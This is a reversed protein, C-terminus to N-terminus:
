FCQQAAELESISSITRIGVAGRAILAKAGETKDDFVFVPSLTRRLNETTGSWTGGVGNRCHAVLTKEGMAHILLNRAHAKQASFPADYAQESVFVSSKEVKYETLRGAPFIVARGGNEVCARRAAEDAGVAGGSCLCFGEAAIKRGAAAAFARNQAPLERSGVVSICRANLAKVEGKVFLVAPCREGLVQRLRQPYNRSVRTVPYIGFKEATILYADLERERELLRVLRASHAADYGLRAFDRESLDRLPDASGLGLTRARKSLEQFQAMSLPKETQDPLACCLLLVGREAATM